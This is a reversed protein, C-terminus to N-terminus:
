TSWSCVAAGTPYSIEISSRRIWLPHLSPRLVRRDMDFPLELLLRNTAFDRMRPRLDAHLGLACPVAPTSRVPTVEGSAEGGSSDCRIAAEYSVIRRSGAEAEFSPLELTLHVNAGRKARTREEWRAEDFGQNGAGRYGYRDYLLRAERKSLVGYAEALERFRVEADPADAVDPHCERALSHFARKITEDDADRSLGLVEYYDRRVTAM